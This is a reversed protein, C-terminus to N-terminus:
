SKLMAGKGEDEERGSVFIEDFFAGKFVNRVNENLENCASISYLAGTGLTSARSMQLSLSVSRLILCPAFYTLVINRVLFIYELWCKM